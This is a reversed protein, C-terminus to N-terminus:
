LVSVLTGVALLGSKQAERRFPLCVFLFLLVYGAKTDKTNLQKPGRAPQTHRNDPAFDGRDVFFNPPFRTM